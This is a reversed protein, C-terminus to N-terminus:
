GMRYTHHNTTEHILLLRDAVSCILPHSDVVEALEETGPYGLNQLARAPVNYNFRLVFLARTGTCPIGFCHRM